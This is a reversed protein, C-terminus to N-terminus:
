LSALSDDSVIVLKRSKILGREDLAKGLMEYSNQFLIDYGDSGPIKVTIQDTMKEMVM